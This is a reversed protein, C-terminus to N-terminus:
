LKLALKAMELTNDVYIRSKGSIQMQIKKMASVIRKYTEEESSKHSYGWAFWNANAHVVNGSKLKTKAIFFDSDWFDDTEGIFEKYFKIYELDNTQKEFSNHCVIGCYFVEEELLYADIIPQGFIISKESDITVKGHACSGKIAIGKEIFYFIIHRMIIVLVGFSAYNDDKSIILISDSFQKVEILNGEIDNKVQISKLFENISRLKNYVDEHKERYVMDKFGLIDLFVVFRNSTVDWNLSNKMKYINANIIEVIKQEYMTEGFSAWRGLPKACAPAVISNM